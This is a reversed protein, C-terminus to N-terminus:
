GFSWKEDWCEDCYYRDDFGLNPLVTWEYCGACIVERMM